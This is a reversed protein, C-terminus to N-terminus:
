ENDFNFNKKYQEFKSRHDIVKSGVAKKIVKGEEPKEQHSYYSKYVKAMETAAATKFEEQSATRVTELSIGDAELQEAGEAVSQKVFEDVVKGREQQKQFNDWDESTMEVRAANYRIDNASTCTCIYRDGTDENEDNYGYIDVTEMFREDYYVKVKNNNVDAKIFDVLKDSPIIYDFKKKNIDFQIRGNRVTVPKPHRIGFMWTTELAGYNKAQPNVAEQLAELRTKGHLKDLVTNNHKNFIAMVMNEFAEYDMPKGSRLHEDNHHNDKSRGPTMNVWYDDLQRHLRNIEKNNREITTSKPNYSRKDQVMVGAKDLMRKTNGEEQWKKDIIVSLPCVGHINLIDRFSQRVGQSNESHMIRWSLVAETKWDMWYWVTMGTSVMKGNVKHLVSHGPMWGDGAVLSLSHQPAKRLHFPRIVVEYYSSGDRCSAALTKMENTNCLQRFRSPKVSEVGYENAMIISYDKWCKYMDPKNAKLYVEKLVALHKEDFVQAYDNGFKQSVLVKRPDDGVTDSAKAWEYYKVRLRDYSHPLGYMDQKKLHYILAHILEERSELGTVSQIDAKRKNDHLFRMMAACIALQKARNGRRNDYNVNYNKQFWFEDHGDFFFLVKSFVEEVLQQKLDHNSGITETQLQAILQEKTPLNYRKKTTSPITDYNVLRKRPDKEDPINEWSSSGERGRKMLVWVSAASLGFSLLQPVRIFLNNNIIKM